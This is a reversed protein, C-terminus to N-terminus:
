RAGDHTPAVAVPASGAVAESSPDSAGPRAVLALGAVVAVASLWAAGLVLPGARLIWLSFLGPAAGLVLVASPLGFAFGPRDPLVRHLAKLTLPTTAQLLLLGVTASRLDSLGLALLPGALVLSAGATRMWGIRDGVVGGLMKGASAALALALVAAVPQTRWVSTVTDGVISRTAVTLLLLGCGLLVSRVVIRSSAPGARRRTRDTRPVCRVVAYAGIVLALAIAARVPADGRGLVIGLGLGSAGPGVFFGIEAARVGSARLVSAGAGVHFLANGIAAVLAGAGPVFPGTALAALVLALGVLSLGRDAQLRDAVLGIPAQLLFALADYSVIWAIVAVLSAGPTDVDRFLVFVCAADVVAHVVGLAFAAATGRGATM